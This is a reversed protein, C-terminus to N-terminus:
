KSGRTSQFIAEAVVRPVLRFEAFRKADHYSIKKERAFIERAERVDRANVHTEGHMGSLNYSVRYLRVESEEM